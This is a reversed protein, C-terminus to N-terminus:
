AWRAPPLLSRKGGTSPKPKNLMPTETQADNSQSVSPRYGRKRGGNCSTEGHQRQQQSKDYKQPKTEVDAARDFLEDISDFMREANTYPKVNPHLKPQIGVLIM